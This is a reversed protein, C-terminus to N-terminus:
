SDSNLVALLKTRHPPIISSPIIQDSSDRRMTRQRVTIEEKETSEQRDGKSLGQIGMGKDNKDVYRYNLM